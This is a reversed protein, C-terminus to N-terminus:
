VEPWAVHRVGDLRPTSVVHGDVVAQKLFFPVDAAACQDRISRVWTDDMPRGPRGGIKECGAIVWAIRSKTMNDGCSRDPCAHCHQVGGSCLEIADSKHWLLELDGVDGLLPEFSVVRKAAPIGSLVDIRRKAAPSEVSVGLWLNSPLEAKHHVLCYERMSQPRKTLAVFVHQPCGRIVLCVEDIFAAAVDTHFLDGMSDVFVM